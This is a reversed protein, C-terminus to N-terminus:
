VPAEPLAQETVCPHQRSSGRHRRRRNSRMVDFDRGSFGPIAIWLSALSGNRVNWFSRNSTSSGADLSRQDDKQPM